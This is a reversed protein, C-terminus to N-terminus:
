RENSKLWAEFERISAEFSPLYDSLSAHSKPSQVAERYIALTREIWAGATKPGDRELLFEIRRTEHEMTVKSPRDDGPRVKGPLRPLVRGASM